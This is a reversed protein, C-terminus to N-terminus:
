SCSGFNLIIPRGPSAFDLLKVKFKGDATLFTPNPTKGNIKAKKYAFELYMKKFVFWWTSFNAYTWTFGEPDMGTVGMPSHKVMKRHYLRFLPPCPSLIRQFIIYASILGMVRLFKFFRIFKMKMNIQFYCLYAHSICDKSLCIRRITFIAMVFISIFENIILSSIIKFLRSAINDLIQLQIRELPSLM